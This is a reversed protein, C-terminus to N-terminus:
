RRWPAVVLEAHLSKVSLIGFIEALARCEDADADLTVATGRPQVREWAFARRFSPTDASQNM